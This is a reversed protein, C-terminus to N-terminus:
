LFHLRIFMLNKMILHACTEEKSKAICIFFIGLIFFSDCYFVERKLDIIRSM